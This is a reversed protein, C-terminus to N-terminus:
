RKTHEVLVRLEDLGLNWREGLEKHTGASGLEGDIWLGLTRRQEDTLEGRCKTFYTHLLHIGKEEFDLDPGEQDGDEGYPVPAALASIVTDLIGYTQFAKLTQPSTSTRSPNVLNAVHSNAYVPQANADSVTPNDPTTSPPSATPLSNPGHINYPIPSSTSPAPESPVLLASLLFITKRRVSIEPDQLAERLKVWGVQGLCEVAPANHKLLGSLTYIAKSRAQLTSSPSPTLFDLLVPLPHYQMYDDQAAPNNQLATGIVWLAQTRVAPPSTEATLLSQLPEWMKLKELNNANDIQEILMEFHDLAEIREDESRNSDLAVALDEKMQEADPRGLIMDIIEPDLKERNVATRESPTSHEISWKLLSQM